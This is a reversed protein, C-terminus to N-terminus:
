LFIDKAQHFDELYRQIYWITRDTHPRFHYLLIFDMFRRVCRLAMRFDHVESPESNKLAMALCSLVIRGTNQNEFGTWKKLASINKKPKRFDLFKTCALWTSNFLDTQDHKKLFGLIWGMVHWFVEIWICPLTDPAFPDYCSVDELAWIVLPFINLITESTIWM